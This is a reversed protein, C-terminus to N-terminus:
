CWSVRWGGPVMTVAGWPGSPTSAGQAALVVDTTSVPWFVMAEGGIGFRVQPPSEREPSDVIWVRGM